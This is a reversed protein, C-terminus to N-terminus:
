PNEQVQCTAAREHPLLPNMPLLELGSPRANVLRPITDSHAFTPQMNRLGLFYLLSV